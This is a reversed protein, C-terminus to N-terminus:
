LLTLQLLGTFALELICGITLMSVFTGVTLVHALVAVEGMTPFLKGSITVVCSFSQISALDALSAIKPLVSAGFSLYSCLAEEMQSSM